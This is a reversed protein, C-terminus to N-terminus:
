GHIIRGQQDILVFPFGSRKLFRLGKKRGMLMTITACSGAILAAPAMISVSQLEEVPYGTLPNLIHCYRKGEIEFYREYDGSSTLAGTHVDLSLIIEGAKRPHAIGFSWFQRAPPLGIVRLDGGLNVYGSSVGRSHLLSAAQDVAYEKGFGGFDLEMGEEPLFIQSRNWSVKQWGIRSRLIKVSESDPLVGTRFDWAQRLIGSTIDFLGDSQQFCANAFDLLRSTEDDVTVPAKGAAQNIQAIVSDGLYRSFKREIRRIENEAAAFHASPDEGAYIAIENQSGLASFRHHFLTTM